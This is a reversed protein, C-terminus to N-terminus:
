KTEEAPKVTIIRSCQDARRHVSRNIKHSLVGRFAPTNIGGADVSEHEVVVTRRKQDTDFYEVQYKCM